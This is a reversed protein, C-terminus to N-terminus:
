HLSLYRQWINLDCLHILTSYKFFKRLLSHNLSCIPCYINVSHRVLALTYSPSIYLPYQHHSLCTCQPEFFWVLESVTYSSIILISKSTMQSLHEFSGLIFNAHKLKQTPKSKKDVKRREFRISFIVRIEVGYWAFVGVKVLHLKKFCLSRFQM